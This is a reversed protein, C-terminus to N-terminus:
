IVGDFTAAPTFTGVHLEYIVASALPFATWDQDTWEFVDHDVTQSWGQPGDPQRPSRPDALERGDIVFRYRTDPELDSATWWGNDGADMAVRGALTELEISEVDPAWVSIM